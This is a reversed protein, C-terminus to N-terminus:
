YVAPQGPVPNTAPEIKADPFLDTIERLWATRLAPWDLWVGQVMRTGDVTAERTILLNEDLWM